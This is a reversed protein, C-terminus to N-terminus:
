SQHSVPYPCGTAICYPTAAAWHWVVSDRQILAGKEPTVRNHARTGDAEATSGAWPDGAWANNEENRCHTTQGNGIITSAFSM